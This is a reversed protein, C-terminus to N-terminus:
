NNKSRVQAIISNALQKEKEDKVVLELPQKDDNKADATKYVGRLKLLLDIANIVETCTPRTKVQQVERGNRIVKEFVVKGSVIACLRAELELNSKLWIEAERAIIDARVSEVVRERRQMRRAVLDQALVIYRELSRRTLSWKQMYAKIIEVATYGEEIKEAIETVRLKFEIKQSM